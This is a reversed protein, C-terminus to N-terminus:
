IGARFVTPHLTPVGAAFSHFRPPAPIVLAPPPSKRGGIFFLPSRPSCNTKEPNARLRKERPLTQGAHCGPASPKSNANTMFFQRATLPARNRESVFNSHPRVPPQSFLSYGISSYLSLIKCFATVSPIALSLRASPYRRPLPSLSRNPPQTSRLDHMPVHGRSPFASTNIATRDHDTMRPRLPRIAIANRAVSITGPAGSVARYQSSHGLETNKGVVEGL